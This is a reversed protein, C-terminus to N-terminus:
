HTGERNHDWEPPYCIIFKRSVTRFLYFHVKIKKNNNKILFQVVLTRKEKNLHLSNWIIKELNGKQTNRQSECTNSYALGTSDNFLWGDYPQSSFIDPSFGQQEEFIPQPLPFWLHGREEGRRWGRQGPPNLLLVKCPGQVAAQPDKSM